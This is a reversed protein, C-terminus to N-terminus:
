LKCAGGACDDMDLNLLEEGEDIAKLLAHQDDPALEIEEMNLVMKIVKLAPLSLDLQM